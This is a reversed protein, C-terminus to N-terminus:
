IRRPVARTFGARRSSSSVRRVYDSLEREATALSGWDVRIQESQSMVPRNAMLWRIAELQNRAATPDGEWILNNNYQDLANQLTSASTLAMMVGNIYFCFVAV